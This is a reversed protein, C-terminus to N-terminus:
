GQSAPLARVVGSDNSAVTLPEAWQHAAALAAHVGGGAPEVLLSEVWRDADALAESIVGSLPSAMMVVNDDPHTAPTLQWADAVVGTVVTGHEIGWLDNTGIERDNWRVSVIMGVYHWEGRSFRSLVEYEQEANEFDQETPSADGDQEMNGVVTLSGNTFLARSEIM